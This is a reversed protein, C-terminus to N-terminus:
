KDKKDLRIVSEKENIKIPSFQDSMNIPFANNTFFKSTTSMLRHGAVYTNYGLTCFVCPLLKFEPESM